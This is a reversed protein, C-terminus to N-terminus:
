APVATAGAGCAGRIWRASRLPEADPLQVHPRPSHGLPYLGPWVSSRLRFFGTRAYVWFYLSVARWLRQYQETGRDDSLAAIICLVHNFDGNRGTAASVCELSLHSSSDTPQRERESLACPYVRADGDTRNGDVINIIQFAYHVGCFARVKVEDIRKM